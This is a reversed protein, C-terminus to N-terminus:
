STSTSVTVTSTREHVIATITGSGIAAVRQLGLWVVRRHKNITVHVSETVAGSGDQTAENEVVLVELVPEAADAECVGSAVVDGVVVM